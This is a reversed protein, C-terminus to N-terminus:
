TVASQKQAFVSQWRLRTEAHRGLTEYYRDLIARSAAADDADVSISRTLAQLALVTESTQKSIERHMALLERVTMGPAMSREDFPADTQSRQGLIRQASQRMALLEECEARLVAPLMDLEEAVDQLLKTIARVESSLEKPVVPVVEKALFDCIAAVTDFPTVTM